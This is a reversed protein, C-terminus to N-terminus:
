CTYHSHHCNLANRVLEDIPLPNVCTKTKSQNCYTCNLNCDLGLSIRIEYIKENDVVTSDHLLPNEFTFPLFKKKGKFYWRALDISCTNPDYNFKVKKGSKDVAHVLLM